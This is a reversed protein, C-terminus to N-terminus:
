KKINPSCRKRNKPHPLAEVRKEGLTRRGGVRHAAEAVGPPIAPLASVTRATVTAFTVLVRWLGTRSLTGPITRCRVSVHGRAETQQFRCVRHSRM